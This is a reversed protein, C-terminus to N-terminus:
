LNNMIEFKEVRDTIFADYDSFQKLFEVGEERGNGWTSKLLRSMEQQMAETSYNDKINEYAIDPVRRINKMVREEWDGKKKEVPRKNAFDYGKGQTEVEIHPYAKQIYAIEKELTAANKDGNWLSVIIKVIANGFKQIDGIVFDEAELRVNSSGTRARANGIGRADDNAWIGDLPVIKNNAALKSRNVVFTVQGFGASGQKRTLASHPSRTFSTGATLPVKSDRPNTEYANDDLDTPSKYKKANAQSPIPMHTVAKWTGTSLFDDVKMAFKRLPMSHYLFAPGSETLIDKIKM